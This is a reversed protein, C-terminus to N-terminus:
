VAPEVGTKNLVLGAKVFMVDVFRVLGDDFKIQAHQGLCGAAMDFGGHIGLAALPQHKDIAHFLQGHIRRAFGQLHAHGRRQISTNVADRQARPQM